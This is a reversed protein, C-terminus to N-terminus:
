KCKPLEIVFKKTEFEQEKYYRMRDNIWHLMVHNYVVNGTRTVRSLDDIIDWVYVRSKSEHLRLGRGIAQLVKIKSKYSSFFVVHHIRKISVGVSISGYTGILIKRKSKEMNSRIEERKDAKIDGYYLEIDFENGYKEELHKKLRYMPEKNMCLVLINEDKPKAIKCITDFVVFRRDEENIFEVEGQYNREKNKKIDEQTYRLFTNIILLDSVQKNEILNKTRLEYIVPGLYGITTLADTEHEHLTGTFGIKYEANICKSLIKKISVAITQQCEDVIVADFSDFFDVTENTISQYTSITMSANTYKEKGSFILHPKEDLDWNYSMFDSYMRTVLSVSPVVLLIRKGQETLYRSLMYISFSKGSNHHIIGNQYYSEDEAEVSFDVWHQPQVPVKKLMKKYDGCKGAFLDNCNIEEATRWIKTFNSLILFRHDKGCLIKSGDDFSIEYGPGYKSYSDLVKTFGKEHEIEVTKGNKSLFQIENFTLNSIIRNDVKKQSEEKRKITTTILKKNM